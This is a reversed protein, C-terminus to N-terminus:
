ATSAPGPAAARPLARLGVLRTRPWRSRPRSAEGRDARARPRAPRQLSFGHDGVKLATGDVPPVAYFGGRPPRSRTSCWRRAAGRRRDARGAARSLGRGPALAHDPRWRGAAAAADLPRSRGGPRRGRDEGAMRCHPGRRPAPDLERVPTARAARRGRRAPPRRPRRPDARCVARRRIPTYLAYRAGGSISSRCARARDRGAALDRVAGGHGRPVAAVAAGLRRGRARDGAHRDRSLPQPRSRGVAAALRRLGARVMRAYGTM